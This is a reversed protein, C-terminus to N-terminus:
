EKLSKYYQRQPQVYGRKKVQKAWAPRGIFEIADCGADRAYQEFTDFFLDVCDDLVGDYGACHLCCFESKLSFRRIESAVYAHIGREDYAVWLLMTPAFLAGMLDDVSCRDLTWEQAKVVLPAIQGIVEHVHGQPVLTVKM